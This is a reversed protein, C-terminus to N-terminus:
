TLSGINGTPHPRRPTTTPHTSPRSGGGGRLRQAMLGPSQTLLPRLAFGMGADMLERSELAEFTPKFAFRGAGLVEAQEEPSLSAFPPLDESECSPRTVGRSAAASGKQWSWRGGPRV